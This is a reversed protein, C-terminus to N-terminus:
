SHMSSYYFKGFLSPNIDLECLYSTLGVHPSYFFTSLMNRAPMMMCGANSNQRTVLNLVVIMVSTSTLTSYTSSQLLHLYPGFGM